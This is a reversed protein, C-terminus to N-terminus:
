LEEKKYRKLLSEKLQLRARFLYSKLTGEPMGTIESMEKYSLEENHYLTILTQYLVPLKEIASALINSLDRAHLLKEEEESDEETHENEMWEPYSPILVVKKKKLHNFCANYAIQAIWTSLKSEFRFTAIHKFAKLYIEQSLDRRDETDPIMKQIIQMVLRETQRIVM